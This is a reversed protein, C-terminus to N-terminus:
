SPTIEAPAVDTETIVVTKRPASERALAGFLLFAFAMLGANAIMAWGISTRDALLGLLPPSVVFGIDGASRYLGMTLGRLHPPAIDGAYAAPAAGAFNTGFTTICSGVILWLATPAVAMLVIGGACILGAPTIVTKRGFRDAIYAAPGILGLGIVATLTLVGGVQAPSLDFKTYGLLPMLTGRAGLRVSFIALGVFCVTLFDVSMAFRLSTRWGTDVDSGVMRTHPENTEPLRWLAYLGAVVAAAGVVYFPMRLGYSEALLGGVGPGIAVGTLLAGQNTAIFRTRNAPTSIDILYLQAGTMYM